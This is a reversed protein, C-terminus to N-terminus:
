INISCEDEGVYTLELHRYRSWLADCLTSYKDPEAVKFCLEKGEFRYGEPLTATMITDPIDMGKKELMLIKYPPYDVEGDPDDPDVLSISCGEKIGIVKGKLCNDRADDDDCSTTLLLLTIITYCTIKM